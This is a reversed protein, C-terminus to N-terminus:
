ADRIGAHGVGKDHIRSFIEGRSLTARTGCICEDVILVFDGSCIDHCRRQKELVPWAAFIVFMAELDGRRLATTSPGEQSHSDALAFNGAKSEAYRIHSQLPPPDTSGRSASKDLRRRFRQVRSERLPSEVRSYKSCSGGHWSAATQGRGLRPPPLSSRRQPSPCLSLRGQVIDESSEM